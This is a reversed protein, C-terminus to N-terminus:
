YQFLMAKALGKVHPNRSTLGHAALLRWFGGFFAVALFAGIGATASGFHTHM